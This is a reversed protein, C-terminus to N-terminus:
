DKFTDRTKILPRLGDSPDARWERENIECSDPKKEGSGDASFGMKVTDIVPKIEHPLWCHGGSYEEGEGELDLHFEITTAGWRHIARYIVAPSVSHDSWGIGCRPIKRLTNIAALNCNQPLAPYFSTCHLLTIDECGSNQLTQVSKRVEKLTAMGTSLIVPKGTRACAALLDNWLLEYSAIKFFEVFPELEDVAKLYFPTCSFKINRQKCRKALHPLFAPSLEWKRRAQLDPRKRVVEPAFLEDIKFLQFKVAGCGTEAATDIFKLCRNLDNHHNSSIEAIFEPM